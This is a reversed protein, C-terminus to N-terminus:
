SQRASAPRPASTDTSGRSHSVMPTSAAPANTTTDGNATATITYPGADAYVHTVTRVTAVIGIDENTGDGWDVSVRPAAGGSPVTLAVTLSVPTGATATAPTARLTLVPVALAPPVADASSARLALPQSSPMTVPRAPKPTRTLAPVPRAEGVPSVAPQAVAVPVPRETPPPVSGNRLGPVSEGTAVTGRTSDRSSDSSTARAPASTSGSLTAPSRDDALRRATDSRPASEGIILLGVGVLLMGAGTMVRGGVRFQRNWPTGNHNAVRAQDNAVRADSGLRAELRSLDSADPRLTRAEALALRAGAIDGRDLCSDIAEFLSRVRRQQVREEFALWSPPDVGAPIFEDDSQTDM